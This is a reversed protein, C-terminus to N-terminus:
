MQLCQCLNGRKVTLEKEAVGKERYTNHTFLLGNWGFYKVYAM